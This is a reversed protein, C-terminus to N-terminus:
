FVCMPVSSVNARRTIRSLQQSAESQGTEAKKSMTERSAKTSTTPTDTDCDSSDQFTSYLITVM